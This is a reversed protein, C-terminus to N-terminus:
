WAANAVGAPRRWRLRGTANSVNLPAGGEVLVVATRVDHSRVALHLATDGTKDQAGLDAGMAALLEVANTFGGRAAMHLATTGDHSAANVDAGAELLALLAGSHCEKGGFGAAMHVPRWSHLTVAEVNARGDELLAEIAGVNGHLAAVHLATFGRYRGGSQATPDAGAALLLKVIAAKTHTNHKLPDYSCADMLVDFGNSDEASIDAGHGLLAKVCQLSGAEAATALTTYGAADREDASAGLTLLTEIVEAHDGGTCAYHIAPARLDTGSPLSPDVGCEVLARIVDTNDQEAAMHLFSLGDFIHIADFNLLPIGVGMKALGRVKDGSVAGSSASYQLVGMAVMYIAGRDAIQTGSSRSSPAAPMGSGAAEKDLSETAQLLQQKRSASQLVEVAEQQDNAEALELPTLGNEDGKLAAAHLSTSGDSTTAEMSAGAALLLKVFELHGYAAAYHLPTLCAEATAAQIDAGGQLLAKGCDVHGWRAACLLASADDSDRANVDAGAGLLAGTTSLHGYAAAMALPTMGHNNPADIISGAALLPRVFSDRDYYGALHLATEGQFDVAHTDARSAGKRGNRALAREELTEIASGILSAEAYGAITTSFSKASGDDPDVELSKLLTVAQQTALLGWLVPIDSCREGADQAVKIAAYLAKEAETSLPLVPGKDYSVDLFNQEEWNNRVLAKAATRAEALSVGVRILIIAAPGAEKLVGLLLHVPECSAHGLSFAEEQALRIVQQVNGGIGLSSAAVKVALRAPRTMRCGALNLSTLRTLHQLGEQCSPGDDQFVNGSVDLSQLSHFASLERPVTELSCSALSLLTLGSLHSLQNLGLSIWADRGGLGGNGDLHLERLASLGSLQWPVTRLSCSGLRLRTLGELLDLSDFNVSTARLVELDALAPLRGVLARAFGPAPLCCDILALRRVNPLQPPQTVTGVLTAKSLTLETLRSCSLGSLQLFAPPQKVAIYLKGLTRQKSFIAALSSSTTHGGVLKVYLDGWVLPSDQLSQWVDKCCRLLAWLDARSLHRCINELLPLPLTPLMSPQSPNTSPLQLLVLPTRLVALALRGTSTGSIFGKIASQM